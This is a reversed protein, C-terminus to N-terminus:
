DDEEIVRRIALTFQNPRGFDGLETALDSLLTTYMEDPLRRRRRRSPEHRRPPEAPPELRSDHRLIERELEKLRPSPELGLADRLMRWTEAYLELAEAQRGSRYLALMLQGRLRERHPNEAILAELEGILDAHRGLALDAEIREEVAALRLDELRVIEAQAFPEFAFEALAPGRWLVLAEHLVRAAREADGQALAEHGEALRREFRRLDLEEPDIQLLYGPPRTLLTEPPLLKRLRSV